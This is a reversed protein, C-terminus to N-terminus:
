LVLFLKLLLHHFTFTSFIYCFSFIFFLFKYCDGIRILFRSLKLKGVLKINSMATFGTYLRDMSLDIFITLGKTENESNKLM